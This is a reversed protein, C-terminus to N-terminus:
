NRRKARWGAWLAYGILALYGLITLAVPHATALIPIM